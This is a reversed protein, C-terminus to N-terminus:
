PSSLQKNSFFRQWIERLVLGISLAMVAIMLERSKAGFGILVCSCFAPATIWGDKKVFGYKQQFTLRGLALISVLYQLLVSVSSLSFLQTMNGLQIIIVILCWTVIQAGVPVGVRSSKGLFAPLNGTTALAALYRPTMVVMGFAIGVGSVLMGALVGKALWPYGLAQASDVMPNKALSLGTGLAKWCALQLGLYLLTALMLAVMMAAPVHKQSQKAQGAIVPIIEFGQYTFTAILVAQLAASIGWAHVVPVPLSVPVTVAGTAFTVALGVLVLAILPLLKAVTLLNWTWSSLRVGLLCVLTLATLMAVPAWHLSWAHEGFWARCFGVLVAASSALASFYAVWGVAFAVRNGFAAQAYVVPGGDQEFRSGLRAFVAVVPLLLTATGLFVGLGKTGPAWKAIEGLAFFIGIGVVGNVGLALLSPFGLVRKM